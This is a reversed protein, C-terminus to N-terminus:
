KVYHFVWADFFVGQRIWDYPLWGFGKMGWSTGWSNQILFFGTHGNAQMTDDYALFCVAHDGVFHESPSPMPVIGTTPDTALISDYVPFGAVPAFDAAIAARIDDVTANLARYTLGQHHHALYQPDGKLEYGNFIWPKHLWQFSKYTAEPDAGVMVMADPWGSMPCAGENRISKFADRINAGVNGQSLYGGRKQAYFYTYVASMLIFPLKEKAAQVARSALAAESQCMLIPGQQRISSAYQRVSAQAPLTTPLSVADKLLLDRTDVPQKKCGTTYPFQSM